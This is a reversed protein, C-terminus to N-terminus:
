EVEVERVKMGEQIIFSHPTVWNINTEELNSLTSVVRIKGTTLNTVKVKKDRGWTVIYKENRSVKAGLPMTENGDHMVITKALNKQVNVEMLGSNFASVYFKMGDKTWYCPNSAPDQGKYSYLIKKCSSDTIYLDASNLTHLLMKSKNADYLRSAESFDEGDIICPLRVNSFNGDKIVSLDGKITSLKGKLDYSKGDMEVMVGAAVIKGYKSKQYVQYSASKNHFLLNSENADDQIIMREHAHRSSMGPLWMKPYHFEVEGDPKVLAYNLNKEDEGFSFVQISKKSKELIVSFVSNFEDQDINLTKRKKYSHTKAHFHINVTDLYPGDIRHEVRHLIKLKGKVYGYTKDIHNCCGMKYSTSITKGKKDLTFMGCNEKALKTLQKNKVFNGKRYLFIQYEPGGYCSGVGDQLAFDKHGDFNFDDYYLISQDGYLVPKGKIYKADEMDWYFDVKTKLVPQKSKKRYVVITDAETDAVAYYHKSFGEIKFSEASLISFVMLAM